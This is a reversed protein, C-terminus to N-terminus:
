FGVLSKVMPDSEGFPTTKLLRKMVKDPKVLNSSRDEGNISVPYPWHSTTRFNSYAKQRQALISKSCSGKPLMCIYSVARTRGAVTPPRNCHILRSDWLLLCGAPTRLVASKSPDVEPHNTPVVYWDGSSQARPDTKTWDITHTRPYVVLGGDFPSTNPLLNYLGQVCIREQRSPSQDRHPWMRYNGTSHVLGLKDDGTKISQPLIPAQDAIAVKVTVDQGDQGEAGYKSFVKVTTTTTEQDQGEGDANHAYRPNPYMNAGDFSTVLKTEPVEWLDAFVKVVNPEKRAKWAFESQGVGYGFIIGHQQEPWTAHRDWTSPDHRSIGTQLNELFTWFESYRAQAEQPSTVQVAVYGEKSLYQQIEESQTQPDFIPPYLNPIDNPSNVTAM